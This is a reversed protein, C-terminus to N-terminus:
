MEVKQSEGEVTVESSANHDQVMTEAWRRYISLQYERDKERISPAEALIAKVEKIKRSREKM